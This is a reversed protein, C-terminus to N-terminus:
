EESLELYLEETDVDQRVLGALVESRVGNVLAYAEMTDPDMLYNKGDIQVPEYEVTPEVTAAASNSSSSNSSPAPLHVKRRALPVPATVAATATVTATAATATAVYTPIKRLEPKAPRTRKNADRLAQKGALDKGVHVLNRADLWEILEAYEREAKVRAAEVKKLAAADAKATKLADNKTATAAKKDAMAQDAATKAEAKKEADYKYRIAQLEALTAGAPFTLDRDTLLKHLNTIQAKETRNSSSTSSTSAVSASSSSNSSTSSATTVPTTTGAAARLRSLHGGEDSKFSKALTSNGKDWLTGTYVMIAAPPQIMSGDKKPHDAPNKALYDAAISEDSKVLEQVYILFQNYVTADRPTVSKGGRPASPKMSKLATELAANQARSAALEAALQALITELGGQAVSAATAAASTVSVSNTSSSM